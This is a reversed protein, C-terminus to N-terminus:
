EGIKMRDINEQLKEAIGAKVAIQAQRIASCIARAGSSGHAKVVPKSIGVMVTGGVKDPDMRERLSRIGSKLLLASLKTVANKTFIGKVESLLFSAAGELSKLLINGSFGDCVVVDCAGLM